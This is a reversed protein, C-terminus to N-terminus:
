TCWTVGMGSVPQHIYKGLNKGLMEKLGTEGSQAGHAPLAPAMPCTQALQPGLASVELRFGGEREWLPTWSGAANKQGEKM